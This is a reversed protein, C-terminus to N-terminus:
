SDQIKIFHISFIEEKGISLFLKYQTSISQLTFSAFFHFDDKFGNCKTTVSQPLLLYITQNPKGKVHHCPGTLAKAEYESDIKMM